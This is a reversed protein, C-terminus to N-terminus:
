IKIRIEGNSAYIRLVNMFSKSCDGATGKTLGKVLTYNVHRRTQSMFSREAQGLQPGILKPHNGKNLENTRTTHKNVSQLLLLLQEPFIRSTHVNKLENRMQFM